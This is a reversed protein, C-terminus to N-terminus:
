FPDSRWQALDGPPVVDVHGQLVLGPRGGDGASTGVLGWAESRVAETGPFGAAAGLLPLDLPWLDVDLGLAALQKALVHQVDSEADSGTVSPVALLDTLSTALAERDVAALARAEPDTLRPV